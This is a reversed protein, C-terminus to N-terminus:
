PYINYFSNINTEIGARNSSQNSPYIIIEQVIGGFTFSGGYNFLSYGGGWLSTNANQHVILKYGNTENYVQGRNAPTKLIGNVYLSPTGYNQHLNLNVSGMDAVFGYDASSKFPYLYTTDTTNLVFFFNTVSYGSIPLNLDDNIGDFSVVPRGNQSLVGSISDYIKPQNIASIQTANSNNGSQDYWTTVFGNTGACFATLASINLNGLGDFGINQEANDSSRRVRIASGTYAKRLKRFSYAAAANPYLDLLLPVGGAMMGLRLRRM